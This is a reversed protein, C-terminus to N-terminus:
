NKWAYISDGYQIMAKVLVALTGNTAEDQKNYAYTQISYTRADSVAEEGAYVQFTVAERMETSWLESFEIAKITGAANYNLFEESTFTKLVTGGSDKVVVTLDEISGSKLYNSPNFVYKIAIKGEFVLTFGTVAVTSGSLTETAADSNITQLTSAYAKQTDTLDATVLNETNYNFHQQAAAGYNLFDVMFTLEEANSSKSLRNYCYQKISYDGSSAGVYTVGDKEAYITAVINSGIEVSTIGAYKFGYSAYNSNLAGMEVIRVDTGTANGESDYLTKTVELYVKDYADVVDQKVYYMISYDAEFIVTKGFFVLEPAVIPGTVEVAGCVCTGDTYTHAENDVEVTGCTACVYDHTGDGNDVYSSSHGLAAVENDTYSDGCVSCTYTTYGAAECTPDTVVANYSHDAVPVVVTSRSTEVGCVTCYTVNDYSGTATCTAAVENEVVPAGNTHGLAAVEDGTYNDGCVSCTYTTYGAAECTPDTVVANYSHDAVPVVVTSRSTEVGCVTCYTVTDYSGTATCTAAVENEVVPAGDTHGLAAVEDGTYSDGCVSCTYTTYGAAECTPDTVASSYSHGTASITETYSDGCATCTYTKVGPTTCTAATTVVGSNYSHGAPALETYSIEEECNDCIVSIFGGSTCTPEETYTTSSTHTCVEEFVTTYYTAAGGQAVPLIEMDYYYGGEYFNTSSTSYVGFRPTGSTYNYYSLARPTENTTECIRWSGTTGEAITWNYAETISDGFNTSSGAYALYYTGNDITYYASGDYTLNVIYSSTSSDTVVGDTVEIETGYIKGSTLTFNNPIAYYNGDVLAALVYQGSSGLAFPSGVGTTYTYLAYLTVNAMATYTSGASYYTPSEDSNNVPATVWGLFVASNTDNSPTGSPTPLTIGTLTSSTMNSIPTVGAPVSFSVTYNYGTPQTYNQYQTLGCRTCTYIDYGQATATPAVTSTYTYNHGLAAVAETYSDGCLTCAYTISGAATCTAEAIANVAYNHTCVSQLVTTYYTAANGTKMYLQVAGRQGSTSSYCAFSNSGYGITNRTNTGQATMVANGSSITIAFSANDNLTTQTNMNNSRRSSAYIYGSNTSDYFAWTGTRNGTKLEFECVSGSFSITSNASDKTISARDRTSDNQTTSIAYNYNTAAIVVSAGDYLTSTDTVLSYSTNGDGETYTYLAYFTIDGTPTYSSGAQYFTPATTTDEVKVLAWGHFTYEHADASPTGSPTPFTFSEGVYVNYATQSVGNPVIFEVAYSARVSFNIQISCDSSPTVTYVNGSRTLTASGSLITYGSVTYGDAPTATITYGNVSVTGYSSNSSTATVTYAAAFNIRISCNSTPVVTFTNGNQTVTATGSLITYSNAKYGAAPTATITYGNVSVTGYSTNNTSANVTYTVASFNIQITCNSSPNVTFVNGNQSVTATGSTVTYGSVEYGTAPTATITYGNVSVTGYSSNNTTATVTYTIASFNIRVTCNSSATVTFVNGNQSVTATGSTVTYGSVQYGTKPTATIVNGSVSVTGYSTNNSTATVTYTPTSGGAAEGSPTDMNSPPTEGFMLWALEPYDIFVNRNGQFNEVQDNRAMEWDDVPDMEMWEMLTDFDDIARTGNNSSDDSDLAPLKSSSVDTYLNPQGWRVYLYLLIRAVDGKVNDRVELVGSSGNYWIVDVNDIQSASYTSLNERVNAFTYNSKATNVSGISPRLHHLDAGGNEEYYSANSKPWVHERQMTSSGYDDATIDTYFYLYESSGGMADTYDWLYSLEDTQEGSPNYRSYVKHTDTMLTQLADYLDNNQTAAWSDSPSSVGSLQSLASYTYSGTYYAQAQTSLEDCVVHRTATNRSLTGTAAFVTLGSLLSVVFSLVLLLSLIKRPIRYKM